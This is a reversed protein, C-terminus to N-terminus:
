RSDVRLPRPNGPRHRTGGTDMTARGRDSSQPSARRIVPLWLRTMFSRSQKGPGVSRMGVAALTQQTEASRVFDQPAERFAEGSEYKYHYEGFGVIRPGWMKPNAKTAKKMIEL